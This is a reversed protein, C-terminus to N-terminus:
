QKTSMLTAVRESITAVVEAITLSTTDLLWADDAPHLPEVARHLEREDRDLVDHEVEEHSIHKGQEELQHERRRIREHVDANMFIKIDASPLVTTGIDRGEMVVQKGEALARQKDVMIRRVAAHTGVVSAGEGCDVERIRESVDEGDLLVRVGQNGQSIDPLVLEITISRAIAEIGAADTWAVGKKLAALAVCRYMAGTDIYTFHLHEALAKAVTSKGAAVPGDIAIQFPHMQVM